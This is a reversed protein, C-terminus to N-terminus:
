TLLSEHGSPNDVLLEQLSVHSSFCYTSSSLPFFQSYTIWIVMPLLAHDPILLCFLLEFNGDNLVMTCGM